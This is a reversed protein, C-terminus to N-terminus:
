DEPPRPTEGTAIRVLDVLGPDSKMQDRLTAKIFDLEDTSVGRIHKTREEVKAEIYGDLDIEGARLRALPSAADVGETKEVKEAPAAKDVQFTKEVAGKKQVADAGSVDPTPPKKGIRDIGM